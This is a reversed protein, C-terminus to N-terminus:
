PFRCVHARARDIIEPAREPEDEPSGISCNEQPWETGCGHQHLLAAARLLAPLVSEGAKCRRMSACRLKETEENRDAILRLITTLRRRPIKRGLDLYQAFFGPQRM